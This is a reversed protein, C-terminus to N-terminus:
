RVAVQLTAPMVVRVKENPYLCMRVDACAAAAPRVQAVLLDGM